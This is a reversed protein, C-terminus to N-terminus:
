VAQRIEAITGGIAQALVWSGLLIAAGILTYLFTQKATDLKEPKGQAAVFLFGSYIIALAVIPIGITLVVDLISKVFSALNDPKIPNNITIPISIEETPTIGSVQAQVPSASILVLLSGVLIFLSRYINGSNYKVLTIINNM